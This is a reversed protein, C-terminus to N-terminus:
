VPIVHHKEPNGGWGGGSSSMAPLSSVTGALGRVAMSMLVDWLSPVGDVVASDPDGFIWNYTTIASNAINVASNVTTMMEGLTYYGTPDVNNVGDAHAYLYKHLSMPDSSFGAFPDLSAFRGRGPDVYRARLYYWGLNPDFQEGRYLHEVSTTGERHIENGFADYDIRDTIAGEPTTLYRTSGFGDAHIIREQAAPCDHAGSTATPTCSTQGVIGEGFTFVAALKPAAAGATASGEFREIVNAYAYSPDVLYDTRTPSGTAPFTTQGIRLGDANYRYTTRSGGARQEVLRNADDWTYETVGGPATKTLTNGQADYTFSTLQAAGGNERVSEQVLRDNADYASTTVTSRAAAGTGQTVTQTLRNGVRDYTWTSNRDRTDDRHDIAEGTLRKLADYTWSLTRVVGSADSEQAATRLGTADVTYTAGFLLAAAATRQVLGVLRNRRDYTYATTTGDAAIMGTRLGVEDYTYRTTRPTGGAVTSTVSVLRDRADYAYVLSQSATVRSLLNGKPDWTYEIARGASDVRRVLRDRPDFSQTTTGHGDVATARQGTPTYAFTVDADNPYDIGVVRGTDDHTWRTTRGNFDTVSAPEGAATWTKTERQGLPLTRSTERGMSDYTFRTSRGEADTQTIRNGQADYAYTTTTASPTGAALVVSTLRGIADYGYETRRGDPDTEAVKRGLADYAVRTRPNNADNGDDPGADPHITTTLRGAADYAFRTTRGLADTVAIRQGAADYATVTTATSGDIAPETVHTRRGAADYRYETRRGNEDISAIM